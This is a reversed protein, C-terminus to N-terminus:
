LLTSARSTMQLTCSAVPNLALNLRANLLLNILCNDVGYSVHVHKVVGERGILYM